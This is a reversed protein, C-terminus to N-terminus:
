LGGKEGMIMEYDDVTNINVFSKGEPDAARVDTENVYCVRIENLFQRLATKDNLIGEELASLISNCYVGFLPQPERNFVPVAADIHDRQSQESYRECVLRIVGADPFPMDCAIVFVSPDRSNILATYIGAMPGRSPLVDGVLKAGLTFYAEPMNTSILVEHFLSRMLALNREVISVGNIRIFGKQIPFRTNQGGALIVGTIGKIKKNETREPSVDTAIV